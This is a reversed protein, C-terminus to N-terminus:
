RYNICLTFAIVCVVSYTEGIINTLSHYHRHNKGNDNEVSWYKIKLQIKIISADVRARVLAM